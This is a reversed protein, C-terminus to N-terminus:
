SHPITIIEEHQSIVPSHSMQDTGTSSFEM